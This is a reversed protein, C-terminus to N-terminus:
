ENEFIENQKAASASRWTFKTERFAFSIRCTHVESENMEKHYRAFEGGEERM